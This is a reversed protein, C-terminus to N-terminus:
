SKTDNFGLQSEGQSCPVKVQKSQSADVASEYNDRNVESYKSAHVM